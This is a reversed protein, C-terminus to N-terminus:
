GKDNKSEEKKIWKSVFSNDKKMSRNQAWDLSKTCDMCIMRYYYAKREKKQCCDCVLGRKEGLASNTKDFLYRFATAPFTILSNIVHYIRYLIYNKAKM